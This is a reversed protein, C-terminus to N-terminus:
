IRGLDTDPHNGCRRYDDMENNLNYKRRLLDLGKSLKVYYELSPSKQNAFISGNAIRWVCSVVGVGYKMIQEAEYLTNELAEDEIKYGFPTALEVGGVIGTNVYGKGFIEVAQYLNEKWKGYGIYSNKGPCIWKFLKEDLVELNSTYCMLGTEEYLRKLQSNSYSLGILQSPYKKASFLQGISKLIKIYYDVENDLFIEGSLDVGGTLMIM